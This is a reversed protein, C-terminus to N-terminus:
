GHSMEGPLSDQVPTTNVKAPQVLPLSVCVATGEDPASELDLSGGVSRVINDSVPLGLGTGASKTTFLPLRAKALVDAAMGVGTDRVSLVLRSSEVRARVTLTGGRPMADVANLMLNILVLVLHDEVMRVPPLGEPVDLALEVNKWRPDHRVLRVADSVASAISVDDVDGHRRRAFDVMERLTRTMRAVHRRLVDLSDRIQKVDTEGELLELETSLSALPNGLDHAFGATLMGLGAMKEQHVIQAELNKQETVDRGVEIFLWGGDASPEFPIREVDWVRPTADNAAVRNQKIVEGRENVVEIRDRLANFLHETFARSEELSRTRERVRDELTVLLAGLEEDAHRRATRVRLFSWTGLILSASVGRTIHLAHITDLPMRPEFLEWLVFIGALILGGEIATRLWLTRWFRSPTPSSLRAGPGSTERELEM